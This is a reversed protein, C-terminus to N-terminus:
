ECDNSKMFHKFNPLIALLRMKRLIGGKQTFTTSGMPFLPNKFDELVPAELAIAGAQQRYM